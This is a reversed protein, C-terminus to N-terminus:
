QVAIGSERLSRLADMIQNRQFDSTSPDDHLQILEDALQQGRSLLEADPEIAGGNRAQNVSAALWSDAGGNRQRTVSEVLDEAQKATANVIRKHEGEMQKQQSAQQEQQLLGRASTPEQPAPEGGVGAAAGPSATGGRMGVLDDALSGGTASGGMGLMGELQVQLQNRQVELKDRQDEGLGASETGYLQKDISQIQNQLYKSQAQQRETMAGNLLGKPSIGEPVDATDGTATNFRTYGGDETPVLQWAGANTRYNAGAQQQDALRAKQERDAANQGATFEQGAVREDSRFTRDAQNEGATFQQQDQQQEMSYKHRLELLSAEKRKKLELKANTQVAEGAGGLAAALLGGAM